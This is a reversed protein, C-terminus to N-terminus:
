AGFRAAVFLFIASLMGFLVALGLFEPVRLVRMKAASIEFLALAAALLGLKAVWLLLGLPWSWLAGAEAMGFPFFMTGILGLWVMLRLMAAYQLLLLYRGSYELLLAEHVMGLEQQGGPSDAPLRGTETLAVALLAALAFGLSVSIGPPAARFQRAVGDLTPDHAMLVFSLVVVLLAAEAFIGFLVERAAGAGGFAFGTEMGALLVATRALALLGIITIFDSGSGGLMGLCFGPTLVAAAGVAAAAALPWAPYLETATEPVLTQKALLKGLEVYPQLLPPGRRGLLRARLKALLGAPLPAAAFVMATHLLVALLRLLLLLM